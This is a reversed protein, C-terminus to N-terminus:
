DLPSHFYWLQGEPDRAGYERVGYPQDMPAEVIVAGAAVSRAHHTDADDVAVVTMGTVAGLARPSRYDQGSPHLWIVQDGARVEGHVARGGPDRELPGPTLGFVRVLYGHAAPIDDYVLLATTSHVAPDLMTMEELASFLESASPRDRSALAAAMGSLRTCLRAAAEARRRTLELHREVAARLEWQPDNLVQAVQDLPFGLRRLAGIKYLHAVDDVTYLRHGAASRRSPALLGIRDYHHLARVTLGTAQALAGVKWTQGPQAAAGSSDM